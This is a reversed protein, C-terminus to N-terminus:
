PAMQFHPITGSGPCLRGRGIANDIENLLWAIAKLEDQHLYDANRGDAAGPAADENGFDFPKPNVGQNIRSM